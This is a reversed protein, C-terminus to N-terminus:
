IIKEGIREWRVPHKPTDVSMWVRTAKGIINKEPLFGWVRSDASDDRNDGMMFYKGAPVVVDFDDNGRAPIQYIHHTVGLLNEQKEVVDWSASSDDQDTGYQKFQQSIEKGNIYLVKDKYSVRDGPLGIVRKILDRSETPPERFVVIDGRQPKGISLIKTHIVPLRIGYDFKNVLIFDGVLLTPKLSGSPIRFPEYAFSRMSFVLLLIPFFSRAYDVILSLKKSQQKKRKPAFYLVDLLTIIGSLTLAYFLILEFNFDMTIGM